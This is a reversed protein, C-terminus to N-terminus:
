RVTLRNPGSSGLVEPAYMAEAKAGRGLFNGRVAARAAYTYVHPGAAMHDIFWRVQRGALESHSADNVSRRERANGTVDVDKGLLKAAFASLQHQVALSSARLAFDTPELGAPLQDVLAVDHRDRDSMVVVAVLLTTGRTLDTSAREGSELYVLRQVFFGANRAVEADAQLAYTYRVSYHLQGPGQKTVVVPLLGAALASEPVQLVLPDVSRAKLTGGGVPKDGVLVSVQQDGTATDLGQMWAGLGRLAWANDQTTGWRDDHRQDLLWRALRVALPHDPTLQVLVHLLLANTRVPTAWPADVGNAGAWHATATDIHVARTLEEVITKAQAVGQAGAAAAAEAVLLQDDPSLTTRQAFLQDIDGAAPQGLASLTAVIQARTSPDAQGQSADGQREEESAPRTTATASLSARLLAASDKLFVEDVALGAQKAEHLLRLAWATALLHPQDGGPWLALAGQTGVRNLMLKDIAQQARERGVKHQDPVVAYHKALRETWLFAQLQSALQETCGYPYQMLWQLSGRLGALATPSLAVELGGIGPRAQASKQIAERVSQDTQGWTAVSETPASDVIEVPEVVGDQEAGAQVRVQVQVTGPVTARARFTLEASANEQLAFPMQAPGVLTMAGTTATLQATGVGQLPGKSRNRVALAIEFEDGVHVKKPWTTLLMLPKDVAITTQGSGLAEPGAVAVAMLRFATLNDPLKFKATAKGQADVVVNPLWVAVDKFNGRLSAGGGGDEGKEEGVKGKILSSIQALNHVGLAVPAYLAQIPDPLTQGSLAMVGEDVAWLVVEGARPQGHQDSVTLDVTVEDGPRYQSKATSVQVKLQRDAVAVAIKAYGLQLAPAAADPLGVAAPGSRGQFLAIGVYFNPVHRPEITIELTPAADDLRVMRTRMVGDREETVLATAGRKANKILITAKDGVKYSKQDPVLTESEREGQAWHAQDAGIVYVQTMARSKKGGDDTATLVIRHDGPDRTVVSCTVPALGSTHICGGLDTEKLETRWQLTGGIGVERVQLYERRIVRAVLKAGAVLKGAHDTAIMQFVAPDGAPTMLSKYAIGGHVHSPHVWTQTAQSVTQDNPDHATLELQLPISETVTSQATPVQLALKGKADLRAKAQHDFRNKKDYLEGWDLGGFVYDPWGAPEFTTARGSVALSAPANALPGGSYYGAHGTLTIVDGIVHHKDTVAVQMAFKPTRYERVGFESSLVIEGLEARLSYDGYGTGSPLPWAGDFGGHASLIATLKAASRGRPDTIAITVATGPKVLAIGAAGINRVIGKFRVTEGQRYLTKDSFLLGRGAGEGESYRWRHGIDSMASLQLFTWDDSKSAIVVHKPRAPGQDAEGQDGHGRWSFERASPDLDSPGTALGDANTAGHWIERGNDEYVSLSVGAVPLGTKYSTVWFVSTGPGAKVLVHLDTIRYVKHEPFQTDAAGKGAIELVFAGTKGVGAVAPDLEIVRREDRDVERTPALALPVSFDLPSVAPKPKPPGLAPSDALAHLVQLLNTRTLPMARARLDTVNRVLLALRHPAVDREFVDGEVLVTIAPARHGMTVQARYPSTLKQGHVDELGPTVEITYVTEPQWLGRRTATEPTGPPWTGSFSCSAGWCRADLGPVAPTIKFHAAGALNKLPAAIYKNQAQKLHNNFNVHIPAWMDPDCVPQDCGASVVQLPGLTTFDLRFPARSVEPGHLSKIGPSLILAVSAEDPLRQQPTLVILRGPGAPERQDPQDAFAVMDEPEGVRAHLAPMTLAGSELHAAAQVSAADVPQDFRLYIKTGASVERGGQAPASGVVQAPATRFTWSHPLTSKGSLATLAAVKVTYTTAGRLPAAPWFGLTTTGMWRATLPTPPDVQVQTAAMAEDVAAVAVMPQNFAVAGMAPRDVDGRPMAFTVTLEGPTQVALPAAPSTVAPPRDPAPPAQKNCAVILTACFGVVIPVLAASAATNRPSM